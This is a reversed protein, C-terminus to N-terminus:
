PVYISIARKLDLGGPGLPVCVNRINPEMACVLEVLEDAYERAALREVWRKYALLTRASSGPELAACAASLTAKM